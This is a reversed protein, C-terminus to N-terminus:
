WLGNGTSILGRSDYCRLSPIIALVLLLALGADVLTQSRGENKLHSLLALFFDGPSASLLLFALVKDILTTNSRLKRSTACCFNFSQSNIIGILIVICVGDVSPGWM